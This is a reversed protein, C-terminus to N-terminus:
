RKINPLWGKKWKDKNHYYYSIHCNECINAEKMAEVDEVTAILSGCFSCAIDVPKYGIPRVFRIDNFRKEELDKDIKHWKNSDATLM